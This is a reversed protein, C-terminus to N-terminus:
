PKMDANAARGSPNGELWLFFPKVPIRYTRGVRRVPFAKSHILNYASNAGLQLIERVEQVTLTESFKQVDM